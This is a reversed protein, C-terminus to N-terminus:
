RERACARTMGIGVGELSAVARPRTRGKLDFRDEEERALSVLSFVMLAEPAPGRKNLASSPLDEYEHRNRFDNM